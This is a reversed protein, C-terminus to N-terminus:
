IAIVVPGLLTGSPATGSVALRLARLPQAALPVKVPAGVNGKVHLSNVVFGHCSTGREGYICLKLDLDRGTVNWTVWKPTICMSNGAVIPHSLYDVPQSSAPQENGLDCTQGSATVALARAGHGYLQQCSAATTYVRGTTTLCVIHGSATLMALEHEAENWALQTTGAVDRLHEVVKAGTISCLRGLNDVFWTSGDGEAPQTGRAIVKRSM